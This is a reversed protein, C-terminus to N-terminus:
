AVRWWTEARFPVGARPVAIPYAPRREKFTSEHAVTEPGVLPLSCLRRPSPHNQNEKEYSPKQTQIGSSAPHRPASWRSAPDGEGAPTARTVGDHPRESQDDIGLM